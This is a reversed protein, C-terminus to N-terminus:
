PEPTGLLPIAPQSTLIQEIPEILDQPVGTPLVTTIVDLPSEATPLVAEQVHPEPRLVLVLLAVIVVLGVVFLLAAVGRVAPPLGMLTGAGKGARASGVEAVLKM